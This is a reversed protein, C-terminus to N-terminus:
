NESDPIDALPCKFSNSRIGDLVRGGIPLQVTCDQYM